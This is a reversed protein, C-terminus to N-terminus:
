ISLYGYRGLEEDDINELKPSCHHVRLEEVLGGLSQKTKLFHM